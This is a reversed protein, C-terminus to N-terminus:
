NFRHAKGSLTAEEIFFTLHYYGQKDYEGIYTSYADYKGYMDFAYEKAFEYVEKIEEPDEILKHFSYHSDAITFEKREDYLEDVDPSYISV